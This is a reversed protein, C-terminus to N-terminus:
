RHALRNRLVNRRKAAARRARAVGSHRSHKNGGGAARPAPNLSDRATAGRTMADLAIASSQAVVATAAALLSFMRSTKM